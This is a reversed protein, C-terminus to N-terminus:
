GGAEQQRACEIQNMRLINGAADYQDRHTQHGNREAQPPQNVPHHDVPSEVTAHASAVHEDQAGPRLRMCEAMVQLADPMKAIGEFAKDIKGIGTGAKCRGGAIYNARQIREELVGALMKYILYEEGSGAFAADHLIDEILGTNVAHIQAHNGVHVVAQRPVAGDFVDALKRGDRQM